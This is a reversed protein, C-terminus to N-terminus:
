SRQFFIEAAATWMVNACPALEVEEVLPLFSFAKTLFHLKDSVRDSVRDSVDLVDFIGGVAFAQNESVNVRTNATM